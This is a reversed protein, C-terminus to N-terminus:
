LSPYLSYMKKGNLVFISEGDTEWSNLRCNKTM